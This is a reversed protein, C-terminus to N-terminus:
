TNVGSILRLIDGKAEKENSLLDSLSIGQMLGHVHQYLVDWVSRISCNGQHVCEKVNGSHDVCFGSDFMASSLANSVKWLNIRNPPEALRYGGKVGRTSVILKQKRLLATIKSVYQISLGEREAIERISLSGATPGQQEYVRALQLMCRLGYEELASIKM